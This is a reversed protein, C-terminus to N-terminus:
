SLPTLRIIDHAEALAWGSCAGLVDGRSPWGYSGLLRIDDILVTSAAGHEWAAIAALEPLLPCPWEDLAETEDIDVVLHADLWFLAPVHLRALVGPLTTGSDGCVVLADPFNEKAIRCNGEDMDLIIYQGIRDVFNMGSGGGGYLGTEVLVRAQSDTLYQGLLEVKEAHSLL